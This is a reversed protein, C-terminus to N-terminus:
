KKTLEAFIMLGASTQISSIVTIDQSTGILNSANNVVIMTGDLLFGVGQHDEKGARAINLAFQQGVEVKPKMAAILVKLDLVHINQLKALQSLQSNTTLLRSHLQKCTILTLDDQNEHEYQTSDLAHINIEVTPNNQLKELTKLGRQGKLTNSLQDSSNLENLEHIFFSPIIIRRNVFGSEILGPLRGDFLVDLSCVVPRGKNHEQRFRIFPIVFAFDDQNTRLALTVGIYGLASYLIINIGQVIAYLNITDNEGGTLFAGVFLEPLKVSSLLWACFLGICLGFTATSFGRISFKESLSEVLIFFSGILAGAILGIWAYENKGESVIYALVIGSLLSIIFYILRALTIARRSSNPLM